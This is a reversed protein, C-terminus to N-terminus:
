LWFIYIGISINCLYWVYMYTLYILQIYTYISSFVWWTQILSFSKEFAFLFFVNVFFIYVSLSLSIGASKFWPLCLQRYHYIHNGLLSTTKIRKLYLSYIKIWWCSSFCTTTNIYLIALTPLCFTSYIPICIVYMGNM